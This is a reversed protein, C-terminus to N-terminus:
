RTSPADSHWRPQVLRHWEFHPPHHAPDLQVVGDRLSVHITLCRVYKSLERRTVHITLCRIYKFSERRTVHCVCVHGFLICVNLSHRNFGQQKCGSTFLISVGSSLVVIPCSREFSNEFIETTKPTYSYTYGKHCPLLPNSM